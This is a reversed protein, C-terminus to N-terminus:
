CPIHTPCHRHDKASVLIDCAALEKIIRRADKVRKAQLADEHGIVQGGTVTGDQHKVKAAKVEKKDKEICTSFDQMNRYLRKVCDKYEASDPLPIDQPVETKQTLDAQNNIAQYEQRLALSHAHNFFLLWNDTVDDDYLMLEQLTPLDLQTNAPVEEM